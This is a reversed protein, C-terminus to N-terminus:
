KYEHLSAVTFIDKDPWDFVEFGVNDQVDKRLGESAKFVFNVAKAYPLEGVVQLLAAVLLHQMLLAKKEEESHAKFATPFSSNLDAFIHDSLQGSADLKDILSRMMHLTGLAHAYRCHDAAPFHHSAYGLQKVRRLRNVMPSNLLRAIQNLPVARSADKIDIAGHIPDYISSLSNNFEHTSVTTTM